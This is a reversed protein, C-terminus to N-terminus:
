NDLYQQTFWELSSSFVGASMVSVSDQRCHRERVLEVDGIDVELILTDQDPYTLIHLGKTM